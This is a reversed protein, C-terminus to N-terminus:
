RTEWKGFGDPQYSEAANTATFSKEHLQQSNSLTPQVIM